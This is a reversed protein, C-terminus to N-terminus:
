YVEREGWEAAKLAANVDSREKSEKSKHRTDPLYARSERERFADVDAQTACFDLCPRISNIAGRCCPRNDFSMEPRFREAANPSRSKHKEHATAAIGLFYAEDQASAPDEPPLRLHASFAHRCLLCATDSHQM